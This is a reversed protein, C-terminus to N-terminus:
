PTDKGVTLPLLVCAENRAYDEPSTAMQRIRRALAFVPGEITIGLAGFTQHATHAADLVARTASLRAAAALAPSSSDHAGAGSLVLAHAARLRLSANALPHSVAQFEGIARGFQTRV